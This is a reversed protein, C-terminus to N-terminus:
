SRSLDLIQETQYTKGDKIIKLVLKVSTVGTDYKCKGSSCSGLDINNEPKVESDKPKVDIHGIIGRPVVGDATKADYTIEYDVASIGKPNKIVFTVIKNDSLSTFELGIDQPNLTAIAEEQQQPQQTVPKKASNKTLFYGGGVAAVILIVLVAIITNKNNM